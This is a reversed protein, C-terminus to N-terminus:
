KLNSLEQKISNIRQEHLVIADQYPKLRELVRAYNREDGLRIAEQQALENRAKGLADQERTLDEELLRRRENADKKLPPVDVPPKTADRDAQPSASQPTPKDTSIPPPAQICSLKRANHVPVNSYTVRGEQDVYKCTEAWVSTALFSCVLITAFRM